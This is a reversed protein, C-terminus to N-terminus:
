PKDVDKWYSKKLFYALVSIIALYLLVWGGLKEREIKAPEAAYVLFNVLDTTTQNFEAPTMAGSKVLKLITYYHPVEGDFHGHMRGLEPILKQEGQLSAFVNLMNVNEVLLNNYGTPRSPDKYFAHFYTYLWAPGKQNAILTLDPPVIGLWWEKNKLPMKDLTIGVKKALKNHELYKMSHCVMCNKAFFKAGRMLSAEDHTNVHVKELKIPYKALAFICTPFILLTFLLLKKM